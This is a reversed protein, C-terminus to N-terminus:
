LFVIAEFVIPTISARSTTLIYRSISWLREVEAASGCIYDVNCYKDNVREDIEGVKRKKQKDRIREALSMSSSDLSEISNKNLLNHCAEEEEENMSSTDKNQIKIVGSLFSPNPIKPSTPSIYEDGLRNRYWVSSPDLSKVTYNM